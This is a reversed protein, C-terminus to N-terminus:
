LGGILRRRYLKLIRDRRKFLLDKRASYLNGGAGFSVSVGDSSFSSVGETKSAGVEDLVWDAAIMAVADVLDIPYPNYGATYSVEVNWKGLPIGLTSYGSDYDTGMQGLLWDVANPVIEIEGTDPELTFKTGIQDSTIERSNTRHRNWVVIKEVSQVPYNRLQIIAPRGSGDYKESVYSRPEFIRQCFNVAEKTALRCRMLADPDEDDMSVAGLPIGQLHRRVDAPTCIAPGDWNQPTPM